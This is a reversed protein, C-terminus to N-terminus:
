KIPPKVKGFVPDDVLAAAAVAQRVEDPLTEEKVSTEHAQSASRPRADLQAQLQQQLEAVQKIAEDLAGSKTDFSEKASTLDTVAKEVREDLSAVDEVIDTYSKAIASAAKQAVDTAAEDLAKHEVGNAQLRKVLADFGETKLTDYAGDIGMIEDFKKARKDSMPIVESITLLNAAADLPLTTTEQKFIRRYDGSSSRDGQFYAFRHSSGWKEGPHTERYDFYRQAVLSKGEQAVEVYFPGVMDGWVVEGLPIDDDHWYLLPNNVMYADDGQTWHRDVDEKLAQSTLTEAERDQYSNSTVILMYRQGDAAKFVSHGPKPGRKLKDAVAKLIGTDNSDPAAYITKREPETHDHEVTEDTTGVVHTAGKPIEWTHSNTGSEEPEVPKSDLADMKKYLDNIQQHIAIKEDVRDVFEDPM